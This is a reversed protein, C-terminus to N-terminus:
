YLAIFLNNNNYNGEKKFMIESDMRVHDRSKYAPISLQSAKDWLPTGLQKVSGGKERALCPLLPTASRGRIAMESCVHLPKKHVPVNHFIGRRENVEIEVGKGLCLKKNLSPRSGALNQHSGSAISSRQWQDSDEKSQQKDSVHVEDLFM